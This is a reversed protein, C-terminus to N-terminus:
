VLLRSVKHQQLGEPKWHTDPEPSPSSLLCVIIDAFASIIFKHTNKPNLKLYCSILEHLYDWNARVDRIGRAEIMEQMSNKFDIYPDLSYKKIAVGGSVPTHLEQMSEIISNSRGPSSSFFRQSAIITAFDPTSDTDPDSYSSSSSNTSPTSLSKSTSASSLDYLSNFNKIMVSTTPAAATASSLLPDSHEQLESPLPHSSPTITPLCKLINKWFITPMKGRSSILCPSQLTDAIIAIPIFISSRQVTSIKNPSLSLSLLLALNHLLLFLLM